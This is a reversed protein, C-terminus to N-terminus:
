VCAHILEASQQETHKVNQILAHQDRMKLKNSTADNASKYSVSTHCEQPCEQLVGKCSARAHCEKYPVRAQCKCPLQSFGREMPCQVPHPVSKYPMRTPCKNPMRRTGLLMGRKRVCAQRKGIVRLWAFPVAVDCVYNQGVTHWLNRVM